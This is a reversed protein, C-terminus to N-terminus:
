GRGTVEDAETNWFRFDSRRFITESHTVRSMSWWLSITGGNGHACDLVGHIPSRFQTTVREHRYSHTPAASMPPGGAGRAPKPPRRWPAVITLDSSLITPQPENSRRAVRLRRPGSPPAVRHRQFNAVCRDVIRHTVVDYTGDIKPWVAGTPAQRQVIALVVMDLRDGRAVAFELHCKDIATQTELGFCRDVGLRELRHQDFIEITVRVPAVLDAQDFEDERPSRVRAARRMVELGGTQAIARTAMAKKPVGNMM